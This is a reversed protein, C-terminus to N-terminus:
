PMYKIFTIAAKSYGCMRITGWSQDVGAPNNIEIAFLTIVLIFICALFAVILKNISTQKGRDYMFIQTFQISSLAFAHVGFFIDNIDITGTQGILPYVM